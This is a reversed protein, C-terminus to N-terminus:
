PTLLGRARKLLNELFLTEATRTKASRVWEVQDLRRDTLIEDLAPPRGQKKAMDAFLGLASHQGFHQGLQDGLKKEPRYPNGGVALFAYARWVLLATRSARALAGDAEDGFEVRLSTKFNHEYRSAITAAYALMQDRAPIKDPYVFENTEDNIFPEVPVWKGVVRSPLGLRRKELELYDLGGQHYTEVLAKGSATLSRHGERQATVLTMMLNAGVFRGARELNNAILKAEPSKAMTALLDRLRIDDGNFLRAQHHWGGFPIGLSTCIQNMLIVRGARCLDLGILGMGQVERASPIAPGIPPTADGTFTLPLLFDVLGTTM